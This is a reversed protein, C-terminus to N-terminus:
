DGVAAELELFTKAESDKIRKPDLVLRARLVDDAADTLTVVAGFPGCGIEISDIRAPVFDIRVLGSPEVVPSLSTSPFSPVAPSPQLADGPRLERDDRDTRASTHGVGCAIVTGYVSQGGQPSPPRLSGFAVVQDREFFRCSWEAGPRAEHVVLPWADPDEPAERLGALRAAWFSDLSTGDTDAVAIRVSRARVVSLEVERIEFAGLDVRILMSAEYGTQDTLRLLYAGSALPEFAFEGRAGLLHRMRDGENGCRACRDGTCAGCTVRGEGFLEAHLREGARVGAARGFIRGSGPRMRVPPLATTRTALVEVDSVEVPEYGPSGVHLRYDGPTLRLVTELLDPRRAIEAFRTSSAARVSPAPLPLGTAADLARVVLKGAPAPPPTPSAPSADESTASLRASAAGRATSTTEAVLDPVPALERAACTVDTEISGVAARAIPADHRGALWAIGLLIAVALAALRLSTRHPNRALVPRPYATPGVVGDDEPVTEARRLSRSLGREAMVEEVLTLADLVRPFGVYRIRHIVAGVFREKTLGANFAIDLHLKPTPETGM